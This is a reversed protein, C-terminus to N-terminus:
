GMHKYLLTGIMRLVPVPMKNFLKHSFDGIEYHNNIYVEKNLDYKYYRLIQQKTGWGSKFQLLGKNEPATRGFCFISYGNQCCWRIAEWMVLNNPRLYHYRLKSAGYKFIATKGFHFFVAGAIVEKNYSALVVFGQNNAIIHQFINNFFYSPQPPLGHRKRTMCHLRYFQKVSEVSNCIRVELGSKMGKQINRKTSDRFLKFTDAENPSLELTHGYYYSSYPIDAPLNMPGRIEIYKWGAKRGYDIIQDLIDQFHLCDNGLFESYDSFPLSTGRTGTLLSKIEVIPMLITIRKNNNILTFYLPNYKYSDHLVRAWNSSHFFSDHQSSLLMSDWEPYNIPNIIQIKPM